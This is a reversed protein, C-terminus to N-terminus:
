SVQPLWGQSMLQPLAGAMKRFYDADSSPDILLEEGCVISRSARILAEGDWLEASPSANAPSGVAPFNWFCAHDGCIVVWQPAVPNVYGFHLARLRESPDLDSLCRRSDVGQEYRWLVTGAPLDAAAFLGTGHIASPGIRHPVLLGM